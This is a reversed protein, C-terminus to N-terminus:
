VKKMLLGVGFEPEVILRLAPSHQYSPSLTFGFKSLVLSLIIKLEVMAFNQGLCTRTGAGFPVYMHPHQCAGRVGHAFREPNFEHVDPGWINPDHHLISAPVYLNVGKPIHFGGFKMEQLTERTM